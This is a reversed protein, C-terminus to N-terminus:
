ITRTGRRAVKRATDVELDGIALVSSAIAHARRIMSRIRAVLEEFAFPKTLYDDAGTDLGRVRDEVADQPTLCLVPTKIGAKRLTSLITWGDMKPLMMDLVIANYSNSKALHFGEEGDFTLDVAYGEERLGSAVSRALSPHDEVVLIRMAS